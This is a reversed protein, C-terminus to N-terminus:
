NRKAVRDGAEMWPPAFSPIMAQLLHSLKELAVGKEVYANAGAALVQDAIKGSSFGSFVVIKLESKVKRVAKLIEFGDMGPMSLDLLMLDAEVFEAIGMAEFGDAAEAVIEFDGYLPLALKILSRIESSDDAVLVRMM